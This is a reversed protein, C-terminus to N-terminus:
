KLGRMSNIKKYSLQKLHTKLQIYIIPNNLKFIFPTFLHIFNSSTQNLWCIVM